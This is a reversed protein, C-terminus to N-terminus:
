RKKKKGGRFIFAGIVVLVVSGGIVIFIITTGSIGGSSGGDGGDTGDGPEPKGKDSIDSGSGANTTVYDIYESVAPDGFHEFTGSLTYSKGSEKFNYNAKYVYETDTMSDIFNLKTETGDPALMSIDNQNMQYPKGAKSFRFEIKQSGPAVLYSGADNVEVAELAVAGLYKNEVVEAIQINVEFTDSDEIYEINTQPDKYTAKAFVKATGPIDSKFSIESSSTTAQLAEGSLEVSATFSTPQTIKKNTLLDTISVAVKITDGVNAQGTGSLSVKISPKVMIKREFTKNLSQIRAGAMITKAAIFTKRFTINGTGVKSMVQGTIVDVCKTLDGSMCTSNLEYLYFTVPSGEANILSSPSVDLRARIPEGLGVVTNTILAIDYARECTAPSHKVCVDDGGCSPDVKQWTYCPMNNSLKSNDPLCKEISRGDESCRTGAGSTDSPLYALYPNCYVEPDDADTKCSCGTVACTEWDNCTATKKQPCGVVTNDCYTYSKKDASCSNVYIDIDCFKGVDSCYCGKTPIDNIVKERCLKGEDAKCTESTIKPCGATISCLNLVVGTDSPSISGAASCWNKNVQNAFCSTSDGDSPTACRCKTNFCRKPATCDSDAVCNGSIIQCTYSNYDCEAIASCDTPEDCCNPDNTVVCRGLSNTTDTTCYMDDNCPTCKDTGTPVDRLNCEAPLNNNVATCTNPTEDKYYYCEQGKETISKCTLFKNTGPVCKKQNLYNCTNKCQWNGLTTNCFVKTTSPDSVADSVWKSCGQGTSTCVQKTFENACRQSQNGSCYVDSTPCTCVNAVCIKDTNGNTKCEADSACRGGSVDSECTHTAPNCTQYSLCDSADGDCCGSRETYTCVGVSNVGNNTCYKYDDCVNCTDTISSGSRPKCESPVNNNIVTCDNPTTTPATYHYCTKTKETVPTCINFKNTGSICKKQGEQSCDGICKWDKATADCRLLSDTTVTEPVWKTCGNGTPKCTSKSLDNDCRAVNLTPCFDGTTPCGCVSGSCIKDSAGVNCDSNQICSGTPLSCQHTNLDCTRPSTCDSNSNCCNVSGTAGYGGTTAETRPTHVCGNSVSTDVTCVDDDACPICNGSSCVSPEQESSSCSTSTSSLIPCGNTYSPNPVCLKYKDTGDNLCTKTGLSCAGSPCKCTGADCVRGSVSCDEDFLRTCKNGLYDIQSSNKDCYQKMTSSICTSTGMTCQTAPNCYCEKLTDSCYGTSCVTLTGGGWSNGCGGAVDSCTEKNNQTNCRKQGPSCEDLTCRCPNTSTSYGSTSAASTDPTCQENIGCSTNTGWYNCQHSSDALVCVQYSAGYCTFGCSPSQINFASCGTTACSSEACEAKCAALAQDKTWYTNRAGALTTYIGPCKKTGLPKGDCQNKCVCNQYRVQINYQNAPLINGSGDKPVFTLTPPNTLSGTMHTIGSTGYESTFFSSIPNSEQYTAGTCLDTPGTGTPPCYNVSVIYTNYPVQEIAENGFYSSLPNKNIIPHISSTTCAITSEFGSTSKSGQCQFWEALYYTNTALNKACAIITKGGNYRHLDLNSFEMIHTAIRWRYGIGTNPSDSCDSNSFPGMSGSTARNRYYGNLYNADVATSDSSVKSNDLAIWLVDDSTASYAWVNPQRYVTNNVFLQTATNMNLINGVVDCYYGQKDCKFNIGTTGSGYGPTDASYFAADSMSCGSMQTFAPAQTHETPVITFTQCGLIFVLSVCLSVILLMKKNM